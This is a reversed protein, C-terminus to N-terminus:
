MRPLDKEPLVPDVLPRDDNPKPLPPQEVPYPKGPEEAPAKQPTVPENQMCSFSAARNLTGWKIFKL